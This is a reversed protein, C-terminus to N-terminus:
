LTKLRARLGILIEPNNIIANCVDVVKNLYRQKSRYSVSDWPKKALTEATVLVMRAYYFETDAKNIVNMIRQNSSFIEDL